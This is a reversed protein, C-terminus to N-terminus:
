SEGNVAKLYWQATQELGQALTLQPQWGLENRIKSSDVQLSDTLRAAADSKGLLAAGFKLIVEPCPFLRAPVGLAGALLRILDPTSVDEGDSVLYTNGAAAPSEVCALIADVLNDVYILSRRNRTSALPFPYGRAVAQMLRLFNGKVRPGYILPPRLTVVELGSSLAFQNLAQEAEWKSIGYADKPSPPSDEAFPGGVTTEGNVKVSSMFVFRKAGARAAMQALRKTGDVNVRRYQVLPDGKNEHMVHARGALHIVTHVGNLAATWDTGGDISGVSVLKVQRLNDAAAGPKQARVAGRVIRDQRCLEQCLAQGVFGDAGTVLIM